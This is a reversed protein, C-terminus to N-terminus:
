SFSELAEDESSHIEFISYLQVQKLIEKVQRNLNILRLQGGEYKSLTKLIEVLLGIGSSDIFDIESMDLIIKYIERGIVDRIEKRLKEIESVVLDGNLRIIAIDDNELDTIVSLGM